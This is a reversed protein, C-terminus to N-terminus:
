AKAKKPKLYVSELSEMGEIVARIDSIGIKQSNYKGITPAAHQILLFLARENLPGARLKRVGEAIAKISEALVEVAVPKQEDQKVLVKM